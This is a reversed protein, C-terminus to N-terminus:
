GALKLGVVGALILTISLCRLVTVADGLWVM